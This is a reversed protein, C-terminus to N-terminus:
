AGPVCIMLRLVRRNCVQVITSGIIHSGLPTSSDALQTPSYLLEHSLRYRPNLYASRARRWGLSSSTEETSQKHALQLTPWIGKGKVISGCTASCSKHAEM